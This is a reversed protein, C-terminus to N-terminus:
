HVSGGTDLGLRSLAVSRAVEGWGLGPADSWFRPRGWAPQPGLGVIAAKNVMGLEGTADTVPIHEKFLRKARAKLIPLVVVATLVACGAAVVASVWASKADDWDSNKALTKKIGRTFVFFVCIYVTIM